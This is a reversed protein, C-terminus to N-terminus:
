VLLQGRGGHHVDRGPVVGPNGAILGTDQNLTIELAVSDDAEVRWRAGGSIGAASQSWQARGGAM